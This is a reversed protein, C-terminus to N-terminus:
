SGYGVVSKYFNSMLDDYNGNGYIYYKMFANVKDQDISDLIEEGSLNIVNMLDNLSDVVICVKNEEFITANKHIYRPMIVPVRDHILQFAISSGYVIGVDAWSSLELSSIDSADYGSGLEDRNIRGLFNRTHPKYIFNIRECKSLQRVTLTLLDINVNYQPHSMFLAVNIKNSDGYAFKQPKIVNKKYEYIWESAFRPMGVECVRDLYKKNYNAMMSTCFYTHRQGNGVVYRDCYVRKRRPKALSTIFKKLWSLSAKDKQLPDLNTYISFGHLYGVVDTSNDRFCKVIATGIFQLEKGFDMMVVDVSLNKHIRKVELYTLLSMISYTRALLILFPLFYSNQKAKASFNRMVLYVKAVYKYFNSFSDDYNEPILKYKDRLYQLHDKCGTLNSTSLKYLTINAKKNKLVYDVFPLIHDVDNHSDIFIIIKKLKVQM